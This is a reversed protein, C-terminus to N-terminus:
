FKSLRDNLDDMYNQHKKPNEKKLRLVNMLKWQVAPFINFDYSSWDPRGEEISMLFQKDVETLSQQIKSLLTTRTEEFDEYTFHEKTMGSFQNEFVSKQNLFHPALMEAIPRNSSILYFVFGKIIERSFEVTNFM